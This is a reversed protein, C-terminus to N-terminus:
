RSWVSEQAALRLLRERFFVRGVLMTSHAGALMQELTGKSCHPLKRHALLSHASAGGRLTSITADWGREAGVDGVHSVAAWRDLYIATWGALPQIPSLLAAEIPVFQVDRRCYGM